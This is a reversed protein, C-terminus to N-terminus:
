LDTRGNWSYKSRVQRRMHQDAINLVKDTDSSSTDLAPGKGKKTRKPGKRRLSRQSASNTPRYDVDIDRRKRKFSDAKKPRGRKPPAFLENIGSDAIGVFEEPFAATM